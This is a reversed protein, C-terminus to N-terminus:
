GRISVAVRHERHWTQVSEKQGTGCGNRIWDRFERIWTMEDTSYSRGIWTSFDAMPLTPFALSATAEAYSADAQLTQVAISFGDFVWVEPVGIAAYVALRNLSPSTVDIEILLDPPPDTAPDYDRKGRMSSENAVYYGDDPEAGKALEASKLTLSGVGVIPTQLEEALAWILRGILHKSHEHPFGLPSMIVLEGDVYSHVVRRDGFESLFREYFNWGIEHLVACGTEPTPPSPSLTSPM